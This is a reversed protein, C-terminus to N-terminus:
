FVRHSAILCSLNWQWWCASSMPYKEGPWVWLVVIALGLCLPLLRRPALVLSIEEEMWARRAEWPKFDVNQWIGTQQKVRLSSSELMREIMCPIQSQKMMRVELDARCQECSLVWYGPQRSVITLHIIICQLCKWGNTELYVLSAQKTNLLEVEHSLWKDFHNIGISFFRFVWSQRSSAM